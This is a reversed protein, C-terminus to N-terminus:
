FFIKGCFKQPSKKVFSESPSFDLLIKEIV